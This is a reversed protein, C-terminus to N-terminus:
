GGVDGAVRAIDRNAEVAARLDFLVERREVDRWPPEDRANAQEARMDLAVAPQRRGGRLFDGEPLADGTAVVYKLRARAAASGLASRPYREEERGVELNVMFFTRSRM